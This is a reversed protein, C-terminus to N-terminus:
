VEKDRVWPVKLERAREIPFSDLESLFEALQSALDKTVSRTSMDRFLKETLPLGEIMRCGVFLQKFQECGRSVFEFRRIPISLHQRLEPLLKAQLKLSDAGRQYRFFLFVLEGNVLYAYTDWRESSDDLAEHLSQIREITIEPFSKSIVARCLDPNM